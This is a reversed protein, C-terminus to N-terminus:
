EPSCSLRLSAFNPTLAFRTATSTRLWSASARGCDTTQSRPPNKTPFHLATYLQFFIQQRKISRIPVSIINWPLIHIVKTNDSLSTLSYLLYCLFVRIFKTYTVLVCDEIVPFCGLKVSKSNEWRTPHLSLRCSVPIHFHIFLKFIYNKM